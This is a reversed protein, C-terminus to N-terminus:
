FAIQWAYSVTFFRILAGKSYASRRDTLIKFVRQGEIQRGSWEGMNQVVLSVVFSICNIDHLILNPWKDKYNVNM